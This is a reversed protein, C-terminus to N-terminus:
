QPHEAVLSPSLKGRFCQFDHVDAAHLVKDSPLHLLLGPINRFYTLGTAVVVNRTRISCGYISTM